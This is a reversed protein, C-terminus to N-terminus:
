DFRLADKNSRLRSVDPFDQEEEPHEETWRQWASLIDDGEQGHIPDLPSIMILAKGRREVLLPQGSLSVQDCLQSFHTKAEFIGITKPNM